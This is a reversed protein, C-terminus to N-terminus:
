KNKLLNVIEIASIRPGALIFRKNNIEHKDLLLCQLHAFAVERVDVLDFNIKPVLIM